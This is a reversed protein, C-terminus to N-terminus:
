VPFSDVFKKVVGRRFGIPVFYNLLVKYLYREELVFSKDVQEDRECKREHLKARRNGGHNGGLRQRCYKCQQQQREKDGIDNM